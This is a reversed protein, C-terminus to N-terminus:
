TCPPLRTNCVRSFLPGTAVNERYLFERISRTRHLTGGASGGWKPKPLTSQVLVVVGAVAAVALPMDVLLHGLAHQVRAAVVVAAVAVAPWAIVM